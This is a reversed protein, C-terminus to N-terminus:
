EHFIINGAEDYKFVWSRNETEYVYGLYNRRERTYRSFNNESLSRLFVEELLGLEKLPNRARDYGGFTETETFLIENYEHDYAYTQTEQLNGEHNFYFRKTTLINRNRHFTYALKNGGYYYLITDSPHNINSNYTISKFVRGQGDLFYKRPPRQPYNLNESKTVVQLESGYQEVESYLGPLFILNFGTGSIVVSTSGHRKWLKGAANYELKVEQGPTPVFMQPYLM